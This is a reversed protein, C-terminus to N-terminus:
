TADGDGVRVLAGGDAGFIEARGARHRHEQLVRNTGIQDLRELPLGREHVCPRERVDRV